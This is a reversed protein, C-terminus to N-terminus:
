YACVKSGAVKDEEPLELNDLDEVYKDLSWSQRPKTKKSIDDTAYSMGDIKVPCILHAQHM